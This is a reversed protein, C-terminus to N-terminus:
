TGPGPQIFGLANMPNIDHRGMLMIKGLTEADPYANVLSYHQRCVSARMAVSTCFFRLAAQGGDQYHFLRAQRKDKAM